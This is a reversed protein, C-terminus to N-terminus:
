NSMTEVGIDNIKRWVINTGGRWCGLTCARVVEAPITKHWNKMTEALDSNHITWGAERLSDGVRTSNDMAEISLMACCPYVTNEWLMISEMWEECKLGYSVNNKRQLKLDRHHTFSIIRYNTYGKEKLFRESADILGQNIGHNDLTISNFLHPDIEHLKFGNTIIDVKRGHSRVICCMESILDGGVATPEGGTLRVNVQPRWGEIRELFLDLQSHSTKRPNSRYINSGMPLDMTNSCSFCQLNCYNCVNIIFSEKKLYIPKYHPNLVPLIRRYYISRLGERNLKWRGIRM